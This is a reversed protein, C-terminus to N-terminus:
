LLCSQNCGLQLILSGYLKAPKKTSLDQNKQLHFDLLM